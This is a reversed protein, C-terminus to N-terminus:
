PAHVPVAGADRITKHVASSTAFDIFQRVVSSNNEAKYVFGLTTASPYGADSPVLGDIKLIKVNADKAVDNPGFGITGEKREVIEFTEPTSYTTKSKDTLTIGSFGPFTEQLAALSSDDDERRVVRIKEDSGGVDKWNTIKGSYIDLVQKGTLNSVAVGPHVFFAVPVKAFARYDLGYHKEKEKIGRAVRGLVHEGNGVAKIAGGSGISSPVNITVGAQHRSFEVGIANLVVIGDGTGVITLEAAWVQSSAQVAIAVLAGKVFQQVSM